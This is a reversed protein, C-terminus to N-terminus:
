VSSSTKTSGIGMLYLHGTAQYVHHRGDFFDSHAVASCLSSHGGDTEGTTISTFILDDLKSTTIMPM